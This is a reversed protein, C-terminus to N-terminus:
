VCIVETKDLYSMKEQLEPSKINPYPMGVVIVCRGLDDSFNLGESLKGGVVSFLLGGTQTNTVHKISKAYSALVKDVDSSSKPERFIRKKKGLQELKQTKELYTYVKKEYDYSPFFCVIGGPVISCVNTLVSGLEDLQLIIYNLRFAM